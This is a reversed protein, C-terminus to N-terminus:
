RLSRAIALADARSVDAELRLSLPGREWLLVNGALHIQELRYRGDIGVFSVTHPQGEIWIGRGGGVGLREATTGPGVVKEITFETSRGYWSSLAARYRPGAGWVLTVLGGAVDDRVYVADPEGLEEPVRVPFSTTRRAAALTVPVGFFPPELQARVAPLEDARTVAAGRIGLWDLLPPAAVASGALALAAVAVLLWRRRTRRPAALGARVAPVLDPTPPFVHPALDRLERELTSM